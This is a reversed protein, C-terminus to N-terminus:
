QVGQAISRSGFHRGICIMCNPDLGHAWPTNCDGGPGGSVKGRLCTTEVGTEAVSVSTNSVVHRSLSIGGLGGLFM